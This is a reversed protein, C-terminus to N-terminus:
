ERIYKETIQQIEKEIEFIDEVRSVSREIMKGLNNETLLPIDKFQIKKDLFADVALDNSVTYVIQHFHGKEGSEYALALMPFKKFDADEFQITDNSLNWNELSMQPFLLANKVPLVMSPPSIHAAYSGDPFQVLAHIKAQPEIKVDIESMQFGFLEKAELVELGKNAMSASSITIKKGMNWVPHKLADELAIKKMQEDSFTRFPGGSATLVAKKVRERKINQLLLFLSWHESDIPLIQNEYLQEQFLLRSGAVISEKNAIILRKNMRLSEISPVLGSMGTLANIVCTIDSDRLTELIGEIGYLIKIKVQSKIKQFSEYDTAIIIEPQFDRIIELAKSINQHFSFAKLKKNLAQIAKLSSEGVSGTAGLLLVADNM